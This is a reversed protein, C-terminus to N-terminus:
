KKSLDPDEEGLQYIENNFVHSATHIISLADTKMRQRLKRLRDPDGAPERMHDPSKFRLLRVEGGHPPIRVMYRDNNILTLVENGSQMLAMGRDESGSLVSSGFFSHRYTGGLLDLITPAIDMQSSIRTVQKGRTGIIEPAYILFPIRHSTPKPSDELYGGNHDAAFVFITDEFYSAERARDMFKGIAWDTYQIAKLSKERPHGPYKSEIRGDPIDFPEHFSLTLLTAFFPEERKKFTHHAAYYLDEDSWGLDMEFTKRPFEDSFVFDTYGNGGLYSQRHDYYPQGGYIFMTEYGRRRLVEGITLMNGVSSERTTISEGPLDPFGSIVGSVGRTTRTGVAFCNRVLIGDEVLQNLHPTLDKKGGMQKIYPWGLSELMVLVVNYDNRPRDSKSVRLLPNKSDSVYTNNSTNLLQRTRRIAKEEPLTEVHVTEYDVDVTLYVVARQLSFTAMLGTIFGFVIRFRMYRLTKM